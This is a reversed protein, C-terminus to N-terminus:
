AFVSLTSWPKLHRIFVGYVMFRAVYETMVKFLTSMTESNSEATFKGRPEHWIEWGGSRWRTAVNGQSFCLILFLM